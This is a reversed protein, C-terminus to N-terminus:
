PGAREPEAADAGRSPAVAGTVQGLATRGLELAEATLAAREADGLRSLTDIRARVYADFEELPTRIELVEYARRPDVDSGTGEDELLAAVDSPAEKGAHPPAGLREDRSPDEM